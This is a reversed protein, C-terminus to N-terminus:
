TTREMDSTQPDYVYVRNGGSRKADYMMADTFQIFTRLSYGEKYSMLGVSLTLHDFHKDEFSRRIREAIALAQAQDAEPLIAIFEDGGYRFGVDVHDRTCEMVVAGATQLVRDGELHGHCDNYTKFQDVDFLVLSLPHKQRRAREIETELRDYFYRQNYLGTLSDKISIEKLERELRKQQTIDKCIALISQVDAGASNVLSLSINVPIVSGNKHKLETEYNPLPANGQMIRRIHQIEELGGAFLGAAHAAAVEENLYGLMRLAGSNVFEVNGGPGITLIADVTSHLLDELYHKTTRLELNIRELDETAAQIRSELQEQYERNQRVLNRKELVRAVAFSIESLNFPKLVYDDAGARMAEIANKVEILASVVIINVGSGIERLRRVVQIGNMEPMRLDTLLLAIDESSCIRIAEEPSLTGQCQYGEATLHQCLVDLIIAEDDLVLIRESM